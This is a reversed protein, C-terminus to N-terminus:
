SRAGARAMSRATPMVSSSQSLGCTATQEDHFSTVGQLMGRPRSALRALTPTRAAPPKGISNVVMATLSPMEIPWSPMCADSTLRSTMASETSVTICASRSSANTVKAPHSLDSARCTSPTASADVHRRHEHVAARDQRAVAVALREVDHRHEFRDTRAARARDGCSSSSAMSRLAQGVSPLQAPMNVALVIADTASAM